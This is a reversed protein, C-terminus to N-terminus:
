LDVYGIKSNQSNTYHRATLLQADNQHNKVFLISKLLRIKASKSVLELFEIMEKQYTSIKAFIKITKYGGRSFKFVWIVM